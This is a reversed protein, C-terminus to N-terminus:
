QALYKSIVEYTDRSPKNNMIKDLTKRMLNKRREDLKHIMSFSSSARSAVQPNFSDIHQIREGLLEYGKGSLDHFSVLNHRAFQLYLARLYNPVQGLFLPDKELKIIREIAEDKPSYSALAGFWKLMVLSDHRWKHYFGGIADHEIPVGTLIFQHLGHIEETMNTAKFYHKQLSDLGEHNGSAVLYTLCQNKLAREGFAKPTLEFKRPGTLQDHTTLFWDKFIKGMKKRLHGHVSHLADFDPNILEMSLENESPFELLYSKFSLDITTDHLLAGFAEIFDEPIKESLTGENEFLTLETKLLHRYIKQTAEYKSYPDNDAIMLTMLDSIEYPYDVLVPASFGRNLSPIGDEQVKFTFSEKLAKLELKKELVVGKKKDVLGVVFPMHLINGEPVPHTTPPYKQKIELVLDEGERRKQVVLTPTGPRDYWNKFQSLDV